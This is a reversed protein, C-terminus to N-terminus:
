VISYIIFTSFTEVNVDNNTTRKHILVRVVSSVVTLHLFNILSIVGYFM